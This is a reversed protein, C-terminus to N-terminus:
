VGEANYLKKNNYVHRFHKTRIM